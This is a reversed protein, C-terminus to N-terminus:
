GRRYPSACVYTGHREALRQLEAYQRRHTATLHADDAPLRYELFVSPTSVSYWLWRNPEARVNSTVTYVLSNM